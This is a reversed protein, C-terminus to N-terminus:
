TSFTAPFPDSSNKTLTYPLYVMLQMSVVNAKFFTNNNKVNVKYIEQQLNENIFICKLMVNKRVKGM